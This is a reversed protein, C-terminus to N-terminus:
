VEVGSTHRKVPERRALELIQQRQTVGAWLAFTAITIPVVCAWYITFKDPQDWGLSPMSFLSSLFTAPLFAMTLVAITKM